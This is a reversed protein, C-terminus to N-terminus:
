RTRRIQRQSRGVLWAVAVLTAAAVNQSIAMKTLNDLTMVSQSSDFMGQFAGALQPITRSLSSVGERFLGSGLMYPGLLVFSFVFLAIGGARLIRATELPLMERLASIPMAGVMHLWASVAVILVGVFTLEIIPFSFQLSGVQISQMKQELGHSMLYDLLLYDIAAVIGVFVILSVWKRSSGHKSM